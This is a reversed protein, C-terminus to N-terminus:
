PRIENTISLDPPPLKLQIMANVFDSGHYKGLIRDYFHLATAIFSNKDCSECAMGIMHAMFGSVGYAGWPHLDCAPLGQYKHGPPCKVHPHGCRRMNYGARRNHVYDIVNQPLGGTCRSHVGEHLLGTFQVHWTSKFFRPYVRMVGARSDRVTVVKRGFRFQSRSPFGAKHYVWLGIGMNDALTFPSKAVQAQDPKLIYNVNQDFFKLVSTMRQTGFLPVFYTQYIARQNPTSQNLKIEYGGKLVDLIDKREQISWNPDWLFQSQFLFRVFDSAAIQAQCISVFSFLIVIFLCVRKM